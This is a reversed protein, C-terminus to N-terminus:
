NNTITTIWQKIEEEDANSSFRHGDQWNGGNSIAKLDKASSGLPSSASTCFPIVTKGAFDNTKVFTNVPWAAIGWWIPYGILVTDYDDFNDVKVNKLEVNRLSEDDHEKSVRSSKNNYNLDESTYENKPELKFLDANLNKALLKAVNETHGQASFYVVLTKSEKNINNNENKISFKNYVLVGLIIFLIITLVIMIKNKM